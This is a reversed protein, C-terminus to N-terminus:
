FDDFNDNNTKTKTVNVINPKKLTAYPNQPNYSINNTKMREVERKYWNLIVKYHNKYNEGKKNTDIYDDLRQIREQYDTPFQEQLKKYEEDTLLVKKAEGHKHKVPKAKKPKDIDKDIDKDIEIDKEIDVNGVQKVDTVTTNCQLAKQKNRHERVRQASATESGVNNEVEPIAFESESIEELLKQKFLYALAMQVNETDEDLKLAIEEELTEEIGEFSFRGETKITYLMLKLYIITYTDGGAIKRLKKIKPNQFFNDQLKLWYYRKSAM